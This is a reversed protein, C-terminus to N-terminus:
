LASGISLQGLIRKKREQHSLLPQLSLMRVVRIRVFNGLSFIDVAGCLVLDM